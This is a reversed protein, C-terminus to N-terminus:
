VELYVTYNTQLTTNYDNPDKSCIKTRVCGFFLQSDRAASPRGRDRQSAVDGVTYMFYTNLCSGSQSSLSVVLYWTGPVQYIETVLRLCIISFFAWQPLDQNLTLILLSSSCHFQQSFAVLSLHSQCLIRTFSGSFQSQDPLPIHYLFLGSFFIHIIFIQPSSVSFRRPSSFM